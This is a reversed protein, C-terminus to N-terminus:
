ETFLELPGSETDSSSEELGNPLNQEPPSAHSQCNGDYQDCFLKIKKDNDPNQRIIKEM